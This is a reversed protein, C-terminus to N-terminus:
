FSSSEDHHLSRLSVARGERPTVDINTWRNIAMPLVFGDNYDTHEGILNVRGPARVTFSNMADRNPIALEKSEVRPRSIGAIRYHDRMRRLPATGCTSHDGPHLAM